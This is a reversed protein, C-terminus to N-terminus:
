PKPKTRSEFSYGFCGAAVLSVFSYFMYEPASVGFFQEAIWSVLIALVFLLIVVERLSYNDNKDKLLQLFFNTM